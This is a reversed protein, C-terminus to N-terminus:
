QIYKKLEDRVSWAMTGLTALFLMGLVFLMRKPHSPKVPVTAGQLVTFAPTREQVKARAAELQTHMANYTQLKIQVDNEMRQLTARVSELHTDRHADSFAGYEELAERYQRGAEVELQAYHQEDIRAKNTRYATIARQLHQCVSDAMTAAIYADQDTVTITIVDNKKDITCSVLGEMGKALMAQEESLFFPDIGGDDGGGRTKPKPMVAKVLKKIAKFPIKYFTQKQHKTLYTYYDTDIDGELNRVRVNWLGVIFDTSAMMDPYLMPYLADNGMMSGMNFGFSSALSGLAGGSVSNETEPALMVSVDYTRPVPLIFACSLVFTWAWVKVFTRKDARLRQWVDRLDIYERNDKAAM